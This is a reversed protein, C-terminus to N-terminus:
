EWGGTEQWHERSNKELNKCAAKGGTWWVEFAHELGPRALVGM